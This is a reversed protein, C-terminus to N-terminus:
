RSARAFTKPVQGRYPAPPIYRETMTAARIPTNDPADFGSPQVRSHTPLTRPAIPKLYSM